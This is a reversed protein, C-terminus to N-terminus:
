LEVPLWLFNRIPGVVSSSLFSYVIFLLVEVVPVYGQSAALRDLVIGLQRPQLVQLVRICLICVGIGVINLQLLRNKSPWMLPVLISYQAVYRFLTLM